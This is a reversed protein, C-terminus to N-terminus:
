KKNRRRHNLRKPKHGEEFKGIIVIALIIIIVLLIVVIVLLYDIMQQGQQIYTMLMSIESSQGANTTPQVPVASAVLNRGIIGTDNSLQYALLAASYASESYGKALTSNSTANSEYVYFQAEKAFETPWVGDTSNYALAISMSDLQQSSLNFSTGASSLAYAYDADLIAVAYNQQRYAQEATSSYLSPGYRLARGIRGSAISELATSQALYSGPQNSENYTISAATCWGNAQAGLYLEDLIQDSDIQSTNYSSLSSNITYNGWMQRLEANLVYNYNSSTLPPPTLSSCLSQTGYLLSLASNRNTSYGNFYYANVYDIYAIDAGTYLYGKGAIASGQNLVAYLQASINNFKSNAALRGIESNTLQITTNVLVNFTTYNCDASCEITPAPLGAVNYNRNFSYKTENAIGNSNGFAFYAAQSINAVQVLPIGFDTQVLYYLETEPDDASAKPVLVLDLGYQKAASVKDFVGGIEGISGNSSITGTMTFGTRLIRHQLASVGLVAMAAGASPGSVNDGSDEIDYTFNYNKFDKNSYNSAYMAATIASQLTSNGVISPGTIAVNGNGSTVTLSINTLSGTNNVLIVAPAKITATGIVAPSSYAIGIVAIFAIMAFLYNRIM